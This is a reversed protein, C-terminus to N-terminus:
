YKKNKLEKEFEALKKLLEEKSLDGYKKSM